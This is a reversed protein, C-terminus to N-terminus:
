RNHMGDFEMTSNVLPGDGTYPATALDEGGAVVERIPLGFATAFQHDREDHAPVAMIAGTGYDMLVYDAVYMPIREGTVPNVVSRGLPVGTKERNADSREEHTERAAHNVYEHVAQEHETGEALR